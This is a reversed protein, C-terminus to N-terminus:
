RSCRRSTCRGIMEIEVDQGVVFRDVGKGQGAALDEDGVPQELPQLGWALQGAHQPVLDAVHDITVPGLVQGLLTQRM